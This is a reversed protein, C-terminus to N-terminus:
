NSVKIKVKAYKGNAAAVAIYCSGKKLATVNGDADVTAVKANSSKWTFSTVASAPLAGCELKLTGGVKLNVTGSKNLVVKSVKNPDVVEVTIVAKKKNQTVVGIKAKGEKVATVLGQDSVTAVKAKSSAWGLTAQATSPSLATTLQLTDGVALTASTGQTIAIATPKAPDVVQVTVTAKKKNTTAVTIKAKGEALATVLGSADVSACGPKSSKVSGLTWGKAVAFDASLQMKEGLALTVTGNGGTKTLAKPIVPNKVIVSCYATKNGDVTTVGVTATGANVGTVAGNAVSAINADSTAWSVGTQTADAPLVSATLTVTEGMYMTIESQSLSVGTVAINSGGEESIENSPIAGAGPWKIYKVYPFSSWANCFGQWSYFRTHQSNSHSDMTVLGEDNKDVVILSHGTHGCGLGDNNFSGCSSTCGGIRITAGPETRQIFARLHSPTLRRQADNLERLLNYGTSANGSFNESFKCGWVLQYIGQAYTWCHGSGPDPVMNACVQVGNMTFVTDNSYDSYNALVALDEGWVADALPVLPLSLDNAYLVVQACTAAADQYAAAGAADLALIDGAEMFGELVYGAVNFAVAARSGVFGTALVVDQASLLAATDWDEARVYVPAGDAVVQAYFLTSAPAQAADNVEPVAEPAAEPAQPVPEQVWPEDIPYEPAESQAAESASQQAAESQVAEPAGEQAAESQVAGPASQQAMEDVYLGTSTDVSQAPVAEEEIAASVDGGEAAAQGAGVAETVAEQAETLGVPMMSFLLCMALTLAMWKIPRM